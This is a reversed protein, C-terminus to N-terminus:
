KSSMIRKWAEWMQGHGSRLFTGALVHSDIPSDGGSDLVAEKAELSSGTIELFKAMVAEDQLLALLEGAAMCGVDHRCSNVRFTHQNGKGQATIPVGTVQRHM